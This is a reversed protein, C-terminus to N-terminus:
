GEAWWDVEHNGLSSGALAFRFAGAAVSVSRGNSIAATM